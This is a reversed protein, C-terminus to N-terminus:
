EREVARRLGAADGGFGNGPLWHLRTGSPARCHDFGLHSDGKGVAVPQILLCRGSLHGLDQVTM